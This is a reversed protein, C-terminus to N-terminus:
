IAAMAKVSSGVQFNTIPVRAEIEFQWIDAKFGSLIRLIEYSNRIERTTVLVDNAYVRVIGYRDAPLSDWVADDTDQEMRPSGLAPTGAPVDFWFRMVEFNKKSKTQFLKSRWTYTQSVPAQDAFDYYYIGGDQLVLGVSSWPDIRLNDVDLGNPGSLLNLGIRHGGPQPWISFSQADAANLEITFGQQAVSTDAGRVCGLAFYSSALFISRLNKLPLFKQWKERTIWLESTNQVTGDQRVLILGNPSCYYVGDNNSVISGRSHCPESNVVKTATMAGPSVGNAIYPSGSTCAVVANGTVGLGVIPYETTLVYSAPWAHPRYPECFWIENERFGAAMGNPMAIIGQLSVPPPTWLQSELIANIVVEDNSANDVYEEETVAFEAVFYYVTGGSQSTITRYLKTTTINRTVGMQDPPPTFLSITWEGNSWGTVVTAPSPASEEAYETVYTYVYSRAEFLASSTGAGILYLDFAGPAWNNIALPPGGSFTNTSIGGTVGSANAREMQIAEESMFGIWYKTNTQLGTPNAFALTLESGATCGTVIVGTNILTDPENAGNDTYLVAAFRATASTDFPQVRIEELSMAGDPTVPIMYITNAGPTLLGGPLTDFGLQVDDGGGSVEVGPACGPAPVGLLWAPDGDNIRQRTNYMPPLSPSAFYYREYQDDVIPSRMVDTDPDLFELWVSAGTISADFSTNAGGQYHTTTNGSYQWDLDAGTEAVNTSNWAAGTEPALVRVRDPAAQLFAEGVFPNPVTGTGYNTGANTNEGDDCTVAQFFYTATDTATAGILVDYADTVTATFTYTEEGLLATEGETPNNNFFLTAEATAETLTPLRYAFQAASNLLTYLLKPTRWGALAGNFVYTNQAYTAQGTPILSDDWGPLMGGFEELKFAEPVTQPQSGGKAM